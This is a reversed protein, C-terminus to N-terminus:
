ALKVAGLGKVGTRVDWQTAALDLLADPTQESPFAERFRAQERFATARSVRWYDAYEDLTLKERRTRTRAVDWAAMFALTGFARRLGVRKSAITLLPQGNEQGQAVRSPASM